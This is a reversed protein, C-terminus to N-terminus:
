AGAEAETERDMELKAESNENTVTDEAPLLALASRLDDASLLGDATLQMLLEGAGGLGLAACLEESSPRNSADTTQLLGSLLQLRQSRGLVRWPDQEVSALPLQHGLQRFSCALILWARTRALSLSRSLALSLSLSLSLSLALSLSLSLPLSPSLSLLSLSLTKGSCLARPM